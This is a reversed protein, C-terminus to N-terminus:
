GSELREDLPCSTAGCGPCVYYAREVRVTGCDFVVERTREGKYQQWQGCQRVGDGIGKM